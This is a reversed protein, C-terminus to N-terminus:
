LASAQTFVARSMTKYCKEPVKETDKAVLNLTPAETLHTHTPPSSLHDLGSLPEPEMQEDEDSSKSTAAFASEDEDDESEPKDFNVVTEETDIAIDM